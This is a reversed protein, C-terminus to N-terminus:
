HENDLYDIHNNFINRYYEFAKRFYESRALNEGLMSHEELAAEQMITCFYGFMLPNGSLGEIARTLFIDLSDDKTYHNSKMGGWYNLQANQVPSDKELFDYTNKLSQFLRESHMINSITLAELREKSEGFDAFCDVLSWIYRVGIISNVTSFYSGSIARLAALDSKVYRHEIGSFKGRASFGRKARRLRIILKKLSIIDPNSEIIESTSPELVTFDDRPLELESFRRILDSQRGFCGKVLVERGDSLTYSARYLDGFEIDNPITQRDLTRHRSIEFEIGKMTKYHANIWTSIDRPEKLDTSINNDIETRRSASSLVQFQNDAQSMFEIFESSSITRKTIDKWIFKRENQIIYIRLNSVVPQSTTFGCRLRADSAKQLIVSIVDPREVELEIPFSEYDTELLLRLPSSDERARLVWGAITTNQQDETRGNRPFDLSANLAIGTEFANNHTKIDTLKM